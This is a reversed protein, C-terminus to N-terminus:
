DEPKFFSYNSNGRHCLPNIIRSTETSIGTQDEAQRLPNLIQLQQLQLIPDSKIWPGPIEMLSPHPQFLFAFFPYNVSSLISYYCFNKRPNREEM